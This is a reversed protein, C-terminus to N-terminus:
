LPIVRRNAPAALLLLGMAVLLLPWLLLTSASATAISLPEAGFIRATVSALMTILNLALLVLFIRSFPQARANIWTHAYALSQLAVLWAPILLLMGAIIWNGGSLLGAELGFLGTMMLLYISNYRGYHVPSLSFKGPLWTLMCGFALLALLGLSLAVLYAHIDLRAASALDHMFLGVLVPAHVLACFALLRLPTSAVSRWIRSFFGNGTPNDPAVALCM